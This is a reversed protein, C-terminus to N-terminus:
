RTFTIKGLLIERREVGEMDHQEKKSIYKDLRRAINSNKVRVLFILENKKTITKKENQQSILLTETQLLLIAGNGTKRGKKALGYETADNEQTCLGTKLEEM